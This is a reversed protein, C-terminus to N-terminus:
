TERPSESITAMPFNHILAEIEALRLESGQNLRIKLARLERKERAPMTSDTFTRVLARAQELTSAFTKDALRLAVREERDLGWSLLRMSVGSGSLNFIGQMEKPKMGLSILVETYAMERNSKARMEGITTRNESRKIQSRTSLISNATHGIREAVLNWELGSDHLAEAHALIEPTYPKQEPRGSM